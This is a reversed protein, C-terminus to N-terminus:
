CHFNGQQSNAWFILDGGKEEGPPQSTGIKLITSHPLMYGFSELRWNGNGDTFEAVLKDLIDEPIASVNYFYLPKKM